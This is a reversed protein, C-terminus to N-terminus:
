GAVRRQAVAHREHHDGHCGLSARTEGLHLRRRVRRPALRLSLRWRRRERSGRRGLSSRRRLLPPSSQSQNSNRSPISALLFFLFRSDSVFFESIEEPNGNPFKARIARRGNLRIGKIQKGVSALDSPIPAKWVNQYPVLRSSSVHKQAVPAWFGDFSDPIVALSAYCHKSWVGEDFNMEHYTVSRFQDSASVAADRCDALEEFTGMFVIGTANSGPNDIRGYRVTTPKPNSYVALRSFPLCSFLYRTCTTGDRTIKGIQTSNLACRSGNSRRWVSRSQELYSPRREKLTKSPSGVTRRVLSFQRRWWTPVRESFCPVVAVPSCHRPLRM